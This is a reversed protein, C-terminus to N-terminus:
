IKAGEYFKDEIWAEGGASAMDLVEKLLYITKRQAEKARLWVFLDICAEWTGVVELYLM